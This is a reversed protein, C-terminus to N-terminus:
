KVKSFAKSGGRCVFANWENYMVVSFKVSLLAVSSIADWLNKSMIDKSEEGEPTARMNPPSARMTATADYREKVNAPNFGGEDDLFAWCAL